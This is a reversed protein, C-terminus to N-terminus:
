RTSTARRLPLWALVRQIQHDWEPWDHGGPGEEYTLPLGLTQAQDRFAVNDAYLFDEQGCWQYLKPKPGSAAAV